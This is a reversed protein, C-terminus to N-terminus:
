LSIWDEIDGLNGCCQPFYKDVGAIKLIYGGYFSSELDDIGLNEETQQTAIEKHIIKLLDKDNIENIKYFSSGKTYPKLDESFGAAISTAIRYAEWDDAFGWYPGSIPTAIDQDYNTIEIVPILEIKM